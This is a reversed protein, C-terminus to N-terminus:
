LTPIYYLSSIKALEDRSVKIVGSDKWKLLIEPNKFAYELICITWNKLLKRSKIAIKAMKIYKSM